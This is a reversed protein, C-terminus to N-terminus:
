GMFEWASRYGGVKEVYDLLAGYFKDNGITASDGIMILQKKARTMAVNMRRYDALFGIESNENSRVLSIYILDREQGQFADMTNISIHPLFSMSAEDKEMEEKIYMCQARYPSIVAISPLALNKDTLETTFQIFHERLIFYEGTNFKSETKANIEEMFGCGATDIFEIPSNSPLELQWHAVQEAAQLQNNYFQQNSFQMIKENMRYQTKLMSVSEFNEVCTELLSIGFGQKQADRSKVTPPLQFPDGVLIVRHARTIPIWSAPQLAQAAEDIVITRFKLQYLMSLSANVLTCAVVNASFLIESILRDELAKAWDELERAEQYADNREEREKAGFRRKYKRADRRLKAAEIKVKKINKSEPHASLRGDLTLSILSEDVRSINGIRVVNLGKESLRDALLDVAANSPATVLVSKETECLLKITHVLTTTKGTGPPGHIITIDDAALAHQVANIQSENLYPQHVTPLERFRPPTGGLLISKLESLRGTKTKLLTELVKEMEKYTREDFLLDVGLQGNGIWDPLDKSNLIIKMKNKEVFHIVGNKSRKDDKSFKDEALSYFVVPAGGRFRHPENLATSRGVTIFAREGFTYGQKLIELPHWTLGKKRKETLSLELVEQRYQEFDQEKELALLRQLLHIKEDITSPPM